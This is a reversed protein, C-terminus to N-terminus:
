TLKISIQCKAANCVIRTLYWCDNVFLLILLKWFGVSATHQGVLTTEPEATRESPTPCPSAIATRQAECAGPGAAAKSDYGVDEPRLRLLAPRLTQKAWPYSDIVWDALDEWPARCGYTQAM